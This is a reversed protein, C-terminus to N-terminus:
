GFYKNYIAKTSENAPEYYAVGNSNTRVRWVGGLTAHSYTGDGAGNDKMNADTLNYKAPDLGGGSSSKSSRSSGGSASAKKLALNYEKLWNSQALADQQQQYTFQQNYRRADEAIQQEQMIKNYVDNTRNYYKDGVQMNMNMQERTAQDRYAFSDIALNMQKELQMYAIEAMKINKTMLAEKINNDYNMVARNYGDRATAVRNQYANYMRVNSSEEYGSGILGQAARTEAGVGYANTQRMYDTNSAKAEKQYDKEALGKQQNITDQLFQSQQETAQQQTNTWNNILDKQQNDLNAREDQLGTYTNNINTQEAIKEKEIELYRPDM